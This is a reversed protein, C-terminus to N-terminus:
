TTFQASDAIAFQDYFQPNINDWEMKVHQDRDNRLHQHNVGLAHMTEHIAVGVPDQCAFSLYIPNAPTVKGIYSLGCFTPTGIKVYYIHNGSPKAASYEFRICTSGEIQEHARRVMDQEYIALSDDFTYPIARGYEWRQTPMQELFLATRKYRTMKLLNILAGSQQETLLVDHQFTGDNSAAVEADLGGATVLSNKLEHLKEIRKQVTASSAYGGSLKQQVAMEFQMVQARRAATGYAEGKCNMKGSRCTQLIAERAEPALYGYRQPTYDPPEPARTVPPPPPTYLVPPPTPRTYYNPQVPETEAPPPPPMVSPSSDFDAALCKPHDPHRWCFHRFRARRVFPNGPDPGMDDDWSWSKRWGWRRGPGGGDYFRRQFANGMPPPPPMDM